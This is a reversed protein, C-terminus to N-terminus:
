RGLRDLLNEVSENVSHELPQSAKGYARDLLKDMALAQTTDNKSPKVTPLHAVPKAIGALIALGLISDPGYQQALARVDATLKNPVGKKRGIGANPPRRRIPKDPPIIEVLQNSREITESM